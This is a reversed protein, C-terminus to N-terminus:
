LEQVPINITRKATRGGTTTITDSPGYITNDTGGSAWLTTTTTTKTDDANTLGTPMTWKSTSIEDGAVLWDTWDITYDLIDLPDKEPLLPGNM